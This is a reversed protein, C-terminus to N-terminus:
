RWPSGGSQSGAIVRYESVKWQADASPRELHVQVRMLEMPTLDGNGHQITRTIDVTRVADHEETINREVTETVATVVDGSEAWADWQPPGILDDSEGEDAADALDGTLWQSARELAAGPSGEKAPQWTFISRMALEAVEDAEAAAEGRSQSVAPPSEDEGGNGGLRIVAFVVAGIVLLGLAGVALLLQGRETRM